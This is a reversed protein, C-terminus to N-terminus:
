CAILPSATPSAAAALCRPHELVQEDMELFPRPPLDALNIKSPKFGTTTIPGTRRVTKFAAM